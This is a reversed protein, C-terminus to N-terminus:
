NENGPGASGHKRRGRKNRGYLGQGAGMTRGLTAVPKWGRGRDADHVTNRDHIDSDAFARGWHRDAKVRAHDTRDCWGCLYVLKGNTHQCACRAM